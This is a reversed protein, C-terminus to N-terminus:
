YAVDSYYQMAIDYQITEFINKFKLASGMINFLFSELYFGLQGKFLSAQSKAYAIMNVGMTQCDVLSSSPYGAVGQTLNLVPGFWEDLTWDSVNNRLYVVSDFSYLIDFICLTSGAFFADPQFGLLFANLFDFFPSATFPIM